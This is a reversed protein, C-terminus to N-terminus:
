HAGCLAAAAIQMCGHMAMVGGAWSGPLAMCSDCMVADGMWLQQQAAASRLVAAPCPMGRSTHRPCVPPPAPQYAKGRAGGGSRKSISCSPRLQLGPQMGLQPCGPV